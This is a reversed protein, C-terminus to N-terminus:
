ELLSWTLGLLGGLTEGLLCHIWSHRAGLVQSDRWPGVRDWFCNPQTLGYEVVVLLVFAPSHLPWSHCTRSPRIMGGQKQSCLTHWFQARTRKMAPNVTTLYAKVGVRGESNQRSRDRLSQSPLVATERHHVEKSIESCLGSPCQLDGVPQTGFFCCVLQM